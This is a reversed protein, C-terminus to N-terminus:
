IYGCFLTANNLPGNNANQVLKFYSVMHDHTRIEECACAGRGELEGERGGGGVVGWWLGDFM